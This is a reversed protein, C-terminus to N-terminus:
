THQHCMHHASLCLELAKVSRNHQRWVGTNAILPGSVTYGCSACPCKSDLFNLGKNALGQMMLVAKDYVRAAEEETAHVGLHKAKKAARCSVLFM